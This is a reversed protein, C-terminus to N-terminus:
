GATIRRMASKPPAYGSALKASTTYAELAGAKDGQKEKLLGLMYWAQFAPAEASKRDGAVYRSLLQIAFPFNRGARFLLTAADYFDNDAVGDIEIAKSIAKELEDMRNSRRYFSALNMWAQAPHKSQAIAEKYAAEAEAPKSRKEAIRGRLWAGTSADHKEIESAQAEAKDLGGGMFGPAELYFEALDSRANLNAPDLRVAKEFSGRVKGALGAATIFSSHEAKNGYARGLWLQYLGNQPEIAAARECSNVAADWREEAYYVRCLLNHAAADNANQKIQQELAAVAEDAKGQALLSEPGELAMAVTSFWALCCLCLIPFRRLKLSWSQLFPDHM